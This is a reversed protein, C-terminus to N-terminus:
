ALGLSKHIQTQLRIDLDSRKIALVIIDEVFVQQKDVPSFVVQYEANIPIYDEVFRLADEFDNRGRYVFKVVDEIGLSTLNEITVPLFDQGLKVDMAVAEVLGVIGKLSQTGNTELVVSLSALEYLLAGVEARQLLPEGGTILVSQLGREEVEKVLDYVTMEIPPKEPADCYDCTLNCGTLRIVTCPKGILPLEGQITDYIEQIKM